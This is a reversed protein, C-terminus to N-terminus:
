TFIRGVVINKLHPWPYKGVWEPHTAGGSGSGAEVQVVEEVWSSDPPAHTHSRLKLCCRRKSHGINVLISPGCLYQFDVFTFKPIFL